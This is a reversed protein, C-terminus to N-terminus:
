KKASANRERCHCLVKPQVEGPVARADRRRDDNAAVTDGDEVVAALAIEVRQGPQESHLNTVATGLEGLDRGPRLAVAAPIRIGHPGAVRADVVDEGDHAERSETTDM